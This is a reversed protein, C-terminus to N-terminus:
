YRRQQDLLQDMQPSNKRRLNHQRAALEDAMAEPNPYKTFGDPPSFIRAAPMEMRIKSLSISFAPHNTVTVVRLTLGHLDVARFFEFVSNAGESSVAVARASECPHGAIREAGAAGSTIQLNTVQLASTVPAYGQLAESLVFGRHEAVNWVFSYGGPRRHTDTLEGENPVYFLQGGRSLLEGDSVREGLSSESQVEARASFGESNTLLFAAASTLFAPPLPTVVRGYGSRMNARNSSACGFCLSLMITAAGVQALVRACCFSRQQELGM